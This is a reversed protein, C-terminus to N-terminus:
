LEGDWLKHRLYAIFARTHPSLNTSLLGLAKLKTLKSYAKSNYLKVQITVVSALNFDWRTDSLFITAFWHIM